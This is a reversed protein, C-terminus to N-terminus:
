VCYLADYLADLNEESYEVEASYMRFLEAQDDFSFAGNKRMGYRARPVCFAAPCFRLRRKRHSTGM